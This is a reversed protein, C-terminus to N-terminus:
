TARRGLAAIMALAAVAVVTGAVGVWGLGCQATVWGGLAAGLGQGFYLMSGNLAFAITAAPGASRALSSQIIPSTAFLAASGATMALVLAALAFGGLDNLMMLAFLMQTIATTTVLIALGRRPPLKALWAGLALGLISGVGTSVQVAGIAAGTLGTAATIVPGIFGVTAFTACFALMTIGMLLPNDGRLASAFNQKGMDPAEIRAPAALALIVLAILCIACAFWFAAQWGFMDGLVSGVPMGIVFALTYGGLVTAIAAPRKDESVLNVAITTSLPLTLAAFLGGAFRIAAILEFSSALATAMNMVTLIAMVGLLVRKRDWGALLRALIPGGIGCAVAFVTQLQGIAPIGVSLDAAMPAILGIFVFASTGFAFPAFVLSILRLNM